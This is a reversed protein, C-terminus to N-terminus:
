LLKLHTFLDRCSYGANYSNYHNKFDPIRGQTSDNYILLDLQELKRIFDDKGNIIAGPLNEEKYEFYFSGWQGQYAQIDFPYFLQLRETLAFDFVCGSYDSILVDINILLEQIDEVEDSVDRIHSFTQVLEIGKAYPHQKILLLYNKNQLKKNIEALFQEDFPNVATSIQRFTPAYLLVKKFQSLHLREYLCEVQFSRDFFVDNRPYGTEAIPTSPYTRRSIQTSHECASIICNYKKLEFSMVWHVLRNKKKTAFDREINKLPTGHCCQMIRFRGLLFSANPNFFNNNDVFLYTARLMYWFARLGKTPKIGLSRLKSFLRRTPTHYVPVFDKMKKACYIALYKPSEKFQYAPEDKWIPFRYNGVSSFFLIKKSKPVVYSLLFLILKLMLNRLLLLFLASVKLLLFFTNRSYIPKGFVEYKILGTRAAM